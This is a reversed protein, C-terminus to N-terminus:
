WILKNKLHIYLYQTVKYKRIWNYVFINEKVKIEERERGRPKGREQM